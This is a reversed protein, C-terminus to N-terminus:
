CVESGGPIEDDVTLLKVKGTKEDEACLLMGYSEIGRLKRPALNAVVIVNKGVLEEPKYHEAIGSVITRTESGMDVTSKLLKDAKPVKECAVIKGTLLKVKLFDDFPIYKSETNEAKGEEKKPEEKKEETKPTENPTDLFEIEKKVDLRPFLNDGKNVTQGFNKLSFAKISDFTQLNKGYGFKDFIKKPTEFLFAQLLTTCIRITEGLYYLVTNLKDKKEPSKALRWPETMDIYKNALRIVSFIENIAENIKQDAMLVSVKSYLTNCAEELMKESDENVKPEPIVAGNYQTIMALTRSVLNGLDNCLDSNITNIFQEATYPTDNFIPGEKALYYRLADAGYKDVLTLPNFGNSKSKSIRDGKLTIFGHSHIQKPLPLDLMKLLIPWIICHFRSIDRGVVHVNCPWFEEYNKDDETGYGLVSLYNLLADIWVYAVHKDNFPLRVGWDFTTRSVCLDTIGPKIFNNYIENKRSEPVLFDTHEKFYDELFKQYKSLKLFYSEEKTLEVPRGCDPCKGDILQSETFFTECPVCYLGEYQSLYIDGQDFLKQYVKEVLEVHHKDTTRIFKDYTIGLKDWIHKFEAVTKDVFQQPTMKNQEAVRAIKLGHEDSGTAYFVNYGDLRYYRACIDALITSFCHGVTLKGSAYYIPTTIYYNKKEM